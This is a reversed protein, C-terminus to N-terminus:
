TSEVWWLVRFGRTRGQLAAALHAPQDWGGIVLVDPRNRRLAKSLGTSVHIYAESRPWRLRQTLLLSRYDGEMESPQWRRTPDSRALYAVTLDLRPDLSLAEFLATRHPAMISTLLLTRVPAM